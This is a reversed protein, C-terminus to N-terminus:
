YKRGFHHSSPFSLLFNFRVDANSLTLSCLRVKGEGWREEEEVGDDGDGMVDVFVEGFVGAWGVVVSCGASHALLHVRRVGSRRLDRVFTVFAERVRQDSGAKKAYFYSLERGPPWSFVFPRIHPPFNGLTLLQGFRKLADTTSCNQQSSKTLVVSQM